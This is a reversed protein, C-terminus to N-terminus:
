DRLLEPMRPGKRPGESDNGVPPSIVPLDEPLGPSEPLKQRRLTPGNPSCASAPLVAGENVCLQKPLALPADTGKDIDVRHLLLAEPEGSFFHIIDDQPRVSIDGALEPLQAIRRREGADSVIELASRDDDTTTALISAKRERLRFVGIVRNGMNWRALRRGTHADWLGDRTAIKAQRMSLPPSLDGMVAINQIGKGRLRFIGIAADSGRYDDCNCPGTTPQVFFLSDGSFGAAGLNASFGSYVLEIPKKRFIDYIVAGTSDFVALTRGERDFAPATLGPPSPAPLATPYQLAVQGDKVEIAWLTVQFDFLTLLYGSSPHFALGIAKDFEVPTFALPAGTESNGVLVGGEMLAAYWLGNASYSITPAEYGGLAAWAPGHDVSNDGPKAAGVAPRSTVAQHPKAEATRPSRPEVNHQPRASVVQPQPARAGGAQCSTDALGLGALAV